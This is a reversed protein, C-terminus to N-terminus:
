EEDFKSVFLSELAALAEKEDPGDIKLALKAGMPAALLLLGMVSKGNVEVGGNVVMISSKFHGAEQVFM